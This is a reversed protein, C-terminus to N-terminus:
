SQGEDILPVRIIAEPTRDELIKHKSGVTKPRRREIMWQWYVEEERAGTAGASDLKAQAARLNARLSDTVLQDFWAAGHVAVAWTKLRKRAASGSV